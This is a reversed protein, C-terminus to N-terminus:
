APVPALVTGTRLRSEMEAAALPRSFFFGQMTDCGRARLFDRQERSEVGEAIVGLNLSHALTLVATAIAADGRDKTVDRVFSQDLKVTDVPLTKLYSLSSYGTGFDDLSIRVGRARLSHLTSVSAAVDHMATSETIELELAEPPLGTEELCLAVEDLLDAKQFQRASLNVECRLPGHGLDRWSKVQSAAERLVFSGIPVILGSAEALAIFHAPSLLGREPHRWRVLAEMGSLRGAALDVIPQYHVEFEGQGLARRLATELALQELARDNMTPTYLRYTDGGAEKARHMAADANQLLAEEHEADGPYVALGVSATVVIERSELVFPARVADLLKRAVRAGDGDQHVQRVLVVFEDASLRAVTDAERVPERLRAAVAVLLADGAAHGLTDLVLRFRDLGLRLVALRQRDRRAQAVAQALRDLFLARNPLGTLPDRYALADRMTLFRYAMSRIEAIPSEFLRALAQAEPFRGQAIAGSADDIALLPGAVRRAFRAVVAYLLLLMGAFLVLIRGAVPVLSRRTDHADRDALVGLGWPRLGEYAARHTALGLLGDVGKEVPSKWALSRTTEGLRMPPPLYGLLSAGTEFSPELSALVVHAADLLTTRESGHPEHATLAPALARPDFSAVLAGRSIGDAGLLPEAMLIAEERRGPSSSRLLPSTTSRRHDLAERLWPRGRLDSGPATERIRRGGPTRALVRGRLDVFSVDDFGLPAPQLALLRAPPEAGGAAWDMELQRALRQLGNTREVLAVRLAASVAQATGATHAESRVLEGDYATRTFLLALVLAPLTAVFVIRSFMYHQLTAPAIEDRAPLLSAAGPLRLLGEALLANLLGMFLQQVFFLALADASLGILGGVIAVDLVLGATLWYVAVAFILSGFRRYLLCSGWAEAVMLLALLPAAMGMEPARSLAPLVGLLASLLGSGTGLGVFSALVFAGGPAFRPAEDLALEGLTQSSAAALLGLLCALGLRRWSSHPM